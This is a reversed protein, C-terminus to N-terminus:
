KAVGVELEWVIGEPGANVVPTAGINETKGGCEHIHGCVCLLPTKEEVARRISESGVRRGSSNLDVAGYPPSHSVLVCRDPCTSLLNAAQEETFDYSWSGFPTVPIAGGVGWFGIGAIQAGSGHLVNASPWAQCAAALEEPSESNGAVLVAPRDIASLAGIVEEVGQRMTGFDGAGLVVDVDRSMRVLNAAAELNRHLDSFLLLRVVASSM